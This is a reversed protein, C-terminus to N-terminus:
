SLGAARHLGQWAAWAAAVAPVGPQGALAQQHSLGPGAQPGTRWATPFNYLQLHPLGLAVAVHSLGSDVGVVGQVAALRDVVAALELTPWVEVRGAAAPGWAAALAHARASEAAGAQPLAISWGDALLRCGFDVWHGQPWCKDARSSGHVLVVTPPAAPAAALPAPHLGFQPPGELAYGLARAALERSRDVAHSRRTVAVPRDVLWRAPREWSSGETAHALGYRHGGPALRALRAVVASKTLGQLDIVADYADHALQQRWHAFEARTSEKWWSRSWRRLPSEIVHHLGDVRQLLAAFAPEIVWDIVAAPHARRIDQVAPLAHVVDGLSSLKVILVRM